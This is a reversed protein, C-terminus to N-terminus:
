FDSFNETYTCDPYGSCGIFQRGENLGSKCTRIVLPKGCFPCMEGTQKAPASKKHAKAYQKHEERTKLDANEYQKLIDYIVSIEDNNLIAKRESLRESLEKKLRSENVIVIDKNKRLIAGIDCMDSFVVFSLVPIRKNLPQKLGNKITKILANRHSENQMVPNYMDYRSGNPYEVTWNRVGEYGLIRGTYGKCEVVIIAKSCIYVVDIELTHGDNIPLYINSLVKGKCGDLSSMSLLSKVSSETLVGKLQSFFPNVVERFLMDLFSM